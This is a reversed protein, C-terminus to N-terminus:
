SESGGNAERNDMDNHRRRLYSQVLNVLAAETQPDLDADMATIRRAEAMLEPRTAAIRLFCTLSVANKGQLWNRAADTNAGAERALRKADSGYLKRLTTACWATVSDTTIAAAASVPNRGSVPLFNQRREDTPDRM